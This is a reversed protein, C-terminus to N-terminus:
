MKVDIKKLSSYQTFDEERYPVFRVTVERDYKLSKLGNILVAAKSKLATEIEPNNTSLTCNIIDFDVYVLFAIKEENELHVNLFFGDGRGERNGALKLEAAHHKRGDYVPLLFYLSDPNVFNHLTELILYETLTGERITSSRTGLGAISRSAISRRLSNRIERKDGKVPVSLDKFSNDTDFLRHIFSKEGESIRTFVRPNLTREKGTLNKVFRLEIRPKTKQVQAIFLNGPESGSFRALHRHGGFRVVVYRHNLREDVVVRVFSGVRLSTEPSKHFGRLVTGKIEM